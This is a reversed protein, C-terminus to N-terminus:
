NKIFYNNVIHSKKIEKDCHPFNIFNALVSINSKSEMSIWIKPPVILVKTANSTLTIKKEKSNKDIFHFKVRGQICFFICSNKKHYNWGKKKNKNIQNFYIEGFSKFFNDKISVYKVIQGKSNKYILRKILKIKKISM